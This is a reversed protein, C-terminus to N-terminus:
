GRLRKIEELVEIDAADQLGGTRKSAILDDISAVCGFGATTVPVDKKSPDITRPRDQKGVVGVRRGVVVLSDVRRVSPQDGEAGLAVAATDEHHTSGAFIRAPDGVQPLESM